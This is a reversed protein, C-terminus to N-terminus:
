SACPLGIVCNMSYLLTDAIAVVDRSGQQGSTVILRRLSTLADRGSMDLSQDGATYASPKSIRDGHQVRNLTTARVRNGLLRKQVLRRPKGPAPLIEIRLVQTGKEVGHHCFDLNMGVPDVHCEILHANSQPQIGLGIFLLGSAGVSINSFPM